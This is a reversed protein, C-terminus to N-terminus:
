QIVEDMRAGCRCYPDPDGCVFYHIYRGCRSCKAYCCLNGAIDYFTDRIEWRGRQVEAFEVLEVGDACRDIKPCKAEFAERTKYIRPKSQSDSISVGDRFPIFLSEGRKIESAM